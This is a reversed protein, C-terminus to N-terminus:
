QKRESELKLELFRNLPTETPVSLKSRDGPTMGMAALLSRLVTLHSGKATGQTVRLMLKAAIEVSWRDSVKLVGPACSAEIENWLAVEDANMRGPPIGLPGAPQPERDRRRGPHMKFAGNLELIRTPKRPRAM